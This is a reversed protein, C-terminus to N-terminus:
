TPWRAETLSASGLGTLDPAPHGDAPLGALDRGWAVVAASAARRAAERTAYRLYHMAVCSRRGAPHADWMRGYWGSPLGHTDADGVDAADYWNYGPPGRRTAAEAEPERDTLGVAVLPCASFVVAADAQCGLGACARCLPATSRGACVPCAPGGTLGDVFLWFADFFGRRVVGQVHGAAHAGTGPLVVGGATRVAFWDGPRGPAYVARVLDRERLLLRCGRCECGAALNRTDLPCRHDCRDRDGGRALAAYAIGTRILDARTPGAPGGHDEFWDAYALRPTDDAPYCRVARELDPNFVVTM